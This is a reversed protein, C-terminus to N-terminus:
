SELFQPQSMLTARLAKLVRPDFNGSEQMDLLCEEVPIAARYSKATTMSTFSEAVCLIRSLLPIEEGQLGDPYGTGNWHEHHHRVVEAISQFAEISNIMTAGLTSHTQVLSREQPTLLDPKNLISEPLAIKGVDHLYGAQRLADLQSDQLGMTQGIGDATQVLQDSHGRTFEDKNEVVEIFSAIAQLYMDQRSDQTQMRTIAAALQGAISRGLPIEGTEFHNAQLSYCILVGLPMGHHAVPFFAVSSAGTLQRFTQFTSTQMREDSGELDQLLIPRLTAFAEGTIGAGLPLTLHLVEETSIGATARVKMQDQLRNPMYLLCGDLRLAEQTLRLAAPLLEDLEFVNLLRQELEHLVMLHTNTKQYYEHWIQSLALQLLHTFREVESLIYLREQPSFPANQVHQALSNCVGLVLSESQTLTMGRQILFTIGRRIEPYLPHNLTQDSTLSAALPSSLQASLSEITFVFNNRWRHNDAESLSLGQDGLCANLISLMPEVGELLYKSWAEVSLAVQARAPARRKAASPEEARPEAMLFAGEDQAAFIRNRGAHKAEYLARDALEILEDAKIEAALKSAIGISVTVSIPTQGRGWFTHQAVHKRIREAVELAHESNTEPLIVAFEEGGYRAVVDTERVSDKLIQAVSRLAQDGLLHGHVDNFKKFYDVDIIALAVPYGFRPARRFESELQRQFYRRNYVGTMGDTIALQQTTEYLQANKIAIAVQSALLAVMREGRADFARAERHFFAIVGLQQEDSAIPVILASQFDALYAEEVGALQDLRLNVGHRAVNGILGEGLPIELTPKPGSRSTRQQILRQTEPELLFIMLEDYPVVSRTETAILELTQGLDIQSGIRQAIQHLISLEQHAIALAHRSQRVKVFLTLLVAMVLLPVLLTAAGLWGFSYYLAVMMWSIPSLILTFLFEWRDDEWLVQWLPVRKELGIYGNVLIVNVVLQVLVAQALIPLDHLALHGLHQHLEGHTLVWNAASYSLTYQAFNFIALSFHRRMVALNVILAIGLLILITPALGLTILAAFLFTFSTTLRGGRPLPVGILETAVSLAALGWFLPSALVPLDRFIGFAYGATALGLATVISFYFQGITWRKM